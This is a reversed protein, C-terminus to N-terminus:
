GRTLNSGLPPRVATHAWATRINLFPVRWERLGTYIAVVIPTGDEVIYVAGGSVGHYTYDYNTDICVVGDLSDSQRPPNVVTGAVIVPDPYTQDWYGQIYVKTGVELKREFDFYTPPLAGSGNTEVVAWDERGGVADGQSVVTYDFPCGNLELRGADTVHRNTVLRHKGVPV